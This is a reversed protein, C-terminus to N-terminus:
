RAYRPNYVAIRQAVDARVAAIVEDTFGIHGSRLLAAFAADDCFGLAVLRQRHATEPASGVALERSVVGLANAAVRAQFALEGGFSERLFEHVSEVLEAATPRGYLDVPPPYDTQPAAVAPGPFLAHMLDHECEAARRGLLALEPSRSSRSLHTRAQKLCMGGWAVIAHIEWWFAAIPDVRRGTAREYAAWLDERTGCGGVPLDGGFRWAPSSLWGLDELPDGLHALEWDLVARIGEPGMIMNGLRFDGHVLAPQVPPPQHARLWALGLELAPRADCAEDLLRELNDLPDAQEIGPILSTDVSHIAALIEGSQAAFRARAVAFPEDRLIRRALTEGEVRATVVYAGNIRDGVEDVHVVDPVPVGAAAAARLLASETRVASLGQGRVRERQLVLPKVDGAGCAIDVLWTLRSAGATLRQASLLRLDPWGLAEALDDRLGGVGPDVDSVGM